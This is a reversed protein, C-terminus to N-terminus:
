NLAIKTQWKGCWETEQVPPWAGMSIPQGNPSAIVTLTAPNYRCSGQRLNRPDVRYFFCLGCQKVESM